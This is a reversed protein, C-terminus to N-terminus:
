GIFPLPEGREQFGGDGSAGDYAVREIHDAPERSGFLRDAVVDFRGRHVSGAGVCVGGRPVRRGSGRCPAAAPSGAARGPSGRNSLLSAPTVTMHLAGTRPMPHQM